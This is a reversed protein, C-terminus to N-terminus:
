SSNAGYLFSLAKSNGLVKYISYINRVTKNKSVIQAFNFDDSTKQLYHILACVMGLSEDNQNTTKLRETDIWLSFKNNKALGAHVKRPDAFQSGIFEKM